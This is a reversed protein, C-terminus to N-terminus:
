YVIEDTKIGVVDRGIGRKGIEARNEALNFNFELDKARSLLQFAYGGFGPFMLQRDIGMADMVELRRITDGSKAM